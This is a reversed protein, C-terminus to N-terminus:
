SPAPASPASAEAELRAGARQLEGKLLELYIAKVTQIGVRVTVPLQLGEQVTLQVVNRPWDITAATKTIM